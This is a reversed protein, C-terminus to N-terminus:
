RIEFIRMSLETGAPQRKKKELGEKKRIGASEIVGTPFPNGLFAEAPKPAPSTQKGRGPIM